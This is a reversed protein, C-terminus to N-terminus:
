REDRQQAIQSRRAWDLYRGRLDDKPTQGTYRGFSFRHGDRWQDLWKLADDSDLTRRLRVLQDEVLANMPYLVLARVGPLRGTEGERSARFKGGQDWWATPTAGHGNWAESELLLETLVPLWFAETKGSGTGGTVVISNGELCDRLASMQHSYLQRGEMLWALFEGFRLRMADDGGVDLETLAEHATFGSSRYSPVPELLTEAALQARLGAGREEALLDDALAYSTRVFREYIGHMQDGLVLPNPTDPSEVRYPRPTAHSIRDTM